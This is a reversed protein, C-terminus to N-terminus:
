RDRIDLLYEHTATISEKGVDVPRGTPENTVEGSTQSVSNSLSVQSIKPGKKSYKVKLVNTVSSLMAFNSARIFHQDKEVM